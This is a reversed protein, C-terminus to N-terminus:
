ASRAAIFLLAEGPAIDPGVEGAPDVARITDKLTWRLPTKGIFNDSQLWFGIEQGPTLIPGGGLELSVTKPAFAPLQRERLAPREPFPSALPPLEPLGFENVIGGECFEEAFSSSGASARAVAASSDGAEATASASGVLAWGALAVFCAAFVVGVRSAVGDGMIRMARLKPDPTVM